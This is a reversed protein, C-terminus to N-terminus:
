CCELLHYLIMLKLRRATCLHIAEESLYKWNGGGELCQYSGSWEVERFKDKKSEVYSHYRVTNTKPHRVQSTVENRETKIEGLHYCQLM